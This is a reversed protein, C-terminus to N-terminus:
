RVKAHVRPAPAGRRSPPRATDVAGDDPTACGGSVPPLVAVEDDDRLRTADGADPEDGNVWVRATDLVASFDAGYRARLADLTDGVTDADVTDAARGAAERAAAFLRVRM